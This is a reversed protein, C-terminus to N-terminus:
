KTEIKSSSRACAKITFQFLYGPDRLCKGCGESVRDIWIESTHLACPRLDKCPYRFDLYFMDSANWQNELLKTLLGYRQVVGFESDFWIYIVSVAPEILVM